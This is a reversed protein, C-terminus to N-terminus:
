GHAPEEDDLGCANRAFQIAAGELVSSVATLDGRAVTRLKASPEPPTEGDDRARIIALAESTAKIPGLHPLSATTGDDLTLEWRDHLATAEARNLRDDLRRSPRPSM